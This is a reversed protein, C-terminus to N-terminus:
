QMAWYDFAHVAEMVPTVVIALKNHQPSKEYAEIDIGPKSMLHAEQELDSSQNAM